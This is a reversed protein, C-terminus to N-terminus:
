IINLNEFFRSSFFLEPKYYNMIVINNYYYITTNNYTDIHLDDFKRKKIVVNEFVKDLYM